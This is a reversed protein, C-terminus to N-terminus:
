VVAATYTETDYPGLDAVYAKKAGYRGAEEAAAAAPVRGGGARGGPPPAGAAEKAGHRGAEEAAAADTVMGGMDSVASAALKSGISLIERSTKKLKGDKSETIVLVGAM